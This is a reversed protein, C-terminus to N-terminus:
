SIQIDSSCCGGEWRCKETMSRHSLHIIHWLSDDEEPLYISEKTKKNREPDRCEIWDWPVSQGSSSPLISKVSSTEGRESTSNQGINQKSFLTVWFMRLWLYFRCFSNDQERTKVPLWTVLLLWLNMKTLPLRLGDTHVLRPGISLLFFHFEHTLVWIVSHKMGKRYRVGVFISRNKTADLGCHSSAASFLFVSLRVRIWCHQSSQLTRSFRLLGLCCTLSSSFFCTLSLLLHTLLQRVKFSSRWMEARFIFILGNRKMQLKTGFMDLRDASPFSLHLLFNFVCVSSVFLTMNYFIVM